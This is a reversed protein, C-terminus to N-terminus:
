VGSKVAQRYFAILSERFEVMEKPHYRNDSWYLTHHLQHQTLEELPVIAINEHIPTGWSFEPMVSVGLGAGVMDSVYRKDHCLMRVKPEFGATRCCQVLNGSYYKDLAQLIFSEERLQGVSVSTRGALSHDKSVALMMRETFLPVSRNLYPNHPKGGVSFHYMNGPDNSELAEHNYSFDVLLDVEPHTPLFEKLFGLMIRRTTNVQLNITIREKGERLAGLADQYDTVVSKAYTYFTKGETSLAIQNGNRIFLPAKLEKELASMYKSMAPQSIYHRRAAESINGTTAVTCFYELHTINM